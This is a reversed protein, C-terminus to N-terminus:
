LGKRTKKVRKESERENVQCVREKKITWSM